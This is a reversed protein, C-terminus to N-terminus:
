ARTSSKMVVGGGDDRAFDLSRPLDWHGGGMELVSDFAPGDRPGRWAAGMCFRTAGRNKAEEAKQRVEDVTMLAQAEVPTDYRASQSCYSCDEPCAGTKISILKSVQMESPDHHRRHVTAARFVLETFPLEFLAEIEELTWDHRPRAADASPHVHANM